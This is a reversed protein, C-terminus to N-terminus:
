IGSHEFLLIVRSKKKPINFSLHFTAIYIVHYLFTVAILLLIDPNHNNLTKRGSKEWKKVNVDFKVTIAM